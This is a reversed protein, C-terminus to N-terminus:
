ASAMRFAITLRKCHTPTLRRRSTTLVVLQVCPLRWCALRCAIMTGLAFSHLCVRLLRRKWCSWAFSTSRGNAKSPRIPLNVSRMLTTRSTKASRSLMNPSRTLGSRRRRSPRSDQGTITQGNVVTTKDKALKEVKGAHPSVELSAQWQYGDMASNVVEDRWPTAANAKGIAVLKTGDNQVEFTGVRHTSDHDLNAVLVNSTQLGSLDVVVPLDWNAVVLKGGTYFTSIFTRPGTSSGDEAAAQLEVPASVALLKQPRAAATIKPKRPM